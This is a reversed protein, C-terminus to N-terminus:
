YNKMCRVSFGNLKNYHSRSIKANNYYLYRGLEGASNGDPFSWLYCSNRIDAFNGNEDRRGGPIASFGSENSAGTNPSQWLKTGTDKLKGGEVFGRPGWEDIDSQEMGMCMELIKWESENIVHWGKPALGRSDSVAYWNYLKGYIAGMAPDNNYYCWAGTTLKVWEKPDKVEPISDGNLYHDTNVNQTTWILDCLKVSASDNETPNTINDEKCSLLLNVILVILGIFKYSM